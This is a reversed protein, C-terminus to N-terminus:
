PNVIFRLQSVISLIYEKKLCKNSYLLINITCHQM